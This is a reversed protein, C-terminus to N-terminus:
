AREHDDGGSASAAASHARETIMIRGTADRDQGHGDDRDSARYAGYYREERGFKVKDAVERRIEENEAPTLCIEIDLPQLSFVPEATALWAKMEGRRNVVVAVWWPANILLDRGLTSVDIRSLFPSMEAHSHWWCRRLNIDRGAAVCDQLYDAMTAASIDSSAWTVAQRMIDPDSVVLEGNEVRVQAFGSIEKGCFKAYALMKACCDAQLKVVPGRLQSRRWSGSEHWDDDTWNHYETFTDSDREPENTKRFPMKM